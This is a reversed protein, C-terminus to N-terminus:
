SRHHTLGAIIFNSACTTCGLVLAWSIASSTLVNPMQFSSAVGIWFGSCAVCELLDVLFPGVIPILPQLEDQGPITIGLHQNKQDAVFPQGGLLVRLGHSIQAHGMIYALGFAALFYIAWIM